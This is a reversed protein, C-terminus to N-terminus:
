SMSGTLGLGLVSLLGIVATGWGGGGPSTCPAASESAGDVSVDAEQFSRGAVWRRSM